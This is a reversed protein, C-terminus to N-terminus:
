ETVFEEFKKIMVQFTDATWILSPNLYPKSKLEANFIKDNTFLRLKGIKFEEIDIRKPHNSEYTFFLLNTRQQFLM